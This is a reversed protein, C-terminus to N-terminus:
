EFWSNTKELEQATLGGAAGHLRLVNLAYDYRSNAYATEAHRLHNQATLVDATTRTGAEFGARTAEFATQNERM